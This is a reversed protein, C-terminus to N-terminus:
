IVSCGDDVDVYHVNFLSTFIYLYLFAPAIYGAGGYLVAYKSINVSHTKRCLHVM